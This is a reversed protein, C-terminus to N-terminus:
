SFFTYTNKGKNKSRYMAQDAKEFLDTYTEADQPAHSIGISASVTVKVNNENKYTQQISSCLGQAKEKLTKSSLSDPTFAIFEDGGMRAVIDHSRFHLKIENYVNCLVDDGYAHGFTDNIAKFNDLDIMFLTGQTDEKLHNTIYTKAAEKNYGGTLHDRESKDKLALQIQKEDHIEYVVFFAVIDNTKKDLKSQMLLRHWIYENENDDSPSRYEYSVENINNNFLEIINKPLVDHGKQIDDPHIHRLSISEHFETYTKYPSIDSDKENIVLRILTDNTCNFEAYVKTMNFLASKLMKEKSITIELESAKKKYDHLNIINFLMILAIYFVLLLLSPLVIQQVAVGTINSSVSYIGANYIMYGSLLICIIAIYLLLEANEEIIKLYKSPVFKNFLLMAINHSVYSIIGTIWFFYQNSVVEHISISHALSYASIAVARFVFLHLIM